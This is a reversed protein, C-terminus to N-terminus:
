PREGFADLVLPLLEHMKSVDPRSPTLGRRFGRATLRRLLQDRSTIIHVPVDWPAGEGTVVAAPQHDGMVIMVVDRGREREILGALSRYVYSLATVYSPGLNKWDPETGLAEYLERGDYPDNTVVRNWDPQYPPTPGFPFHTSLTPLFVFAPHSADLIQELRGFTFQDPIGFWGFWTGAYGLREADYIEDFGYFAGEPWSKKLGPMVAIAQYGQQKFTDILTDRKQRMLMANVDPNRVEVGSLFSLHAFWSSGGFTPSEVFASVVERGADHVANELGARAGALAAAFAPRDYSVAGYAEIFVLVVDAGGVYRLDSRVDPSPSLPTGSAAIAAASLRAQRAFAATVPPSFTPTPVSDVGLAHPAYLLVACGALAATVRM